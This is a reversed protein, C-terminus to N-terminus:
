LMYFRILRLRVFLRVAPQSGRQCGTVWTSQIQTSYGHIKARSVDCPQYVIACVNVDFGIKELHAMQRQTLWCLEPCRQLADPLDSPPLAADKILSFCVCAHVRSLTVDREETNQIPKLAMLTVRTSASRQQLLWSWTSSVPASLSLFYFLWFSIIAKM